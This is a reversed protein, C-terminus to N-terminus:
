AAYVLYFATWLILATKQITSEIRVASGSYDDPGAVVSKKLENDM